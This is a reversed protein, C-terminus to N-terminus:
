LENNDGKIFFNDSLLLYSFSNRQQSIKHFTYRYVKAFIFFNLTNKCAIIRCESINVVKEVFSKGAKKLFISGYNRM